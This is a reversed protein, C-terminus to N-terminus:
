KVEIFGKVADKHFAELSAPAEFGSLDVAFAKEPAPKKKGFEATAKKIEDLYPNRTEIFVGKDGTKEQAPVFLPIFLVVLLSFLPNKM